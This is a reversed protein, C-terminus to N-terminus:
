NEGTSPPMMTRLIARLAAKVRPELPTRAMWQAVILRPDGEGTLPKAEDREAELAERLAAEREGSKSLLDAADTLLEADAEFRAAKRQAAPNSLLRIHRADMAAAAARVRLLEAVGKLRSPDQDTM